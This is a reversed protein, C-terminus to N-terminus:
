VETWNTGIGSEVAFEVRHFVASAAGIMEREVMKQIAEMRDPPGEYYIADHVLATIRGRYAGIRKHVERAARVCIDSATSQPVFALAANEAANRNRSTIVEYQFQRNFPTILFHALDPDIVARRVNDQWVKLGPYTAHIGSVIADADGVPMDLETAIARTGRGYNMGYQVSKVQARLNKAEAPRDVKYSYFDDLSKIIKPFAAPMMLDFYDTAGPRFAAIMAEDGCLEALTRLEIQSYDTSGAVLDERTTIIAKRIPYPDNDTVRPINQINPNKSSLRGTTTGHVLFEPFFVGERQRKLIGTVYTSRLKSLGRYELLHDIFDKAPHGDEMERQAIVLTDEQTDPVPYGLEEMVAKVQQWSGPNFKERKTLTRLADLEAAAADDLRAGIDDLLPVDAGVGGSSVDQLMHSTPMLHSEYLERRPPDLELMARFKKLLRWTWYVDGANYQYLLDRPIREYHAGGVTYKKIDAEWEPANFFKRALDKLKHKKAGHFMAYHMLLTDDTAYFPRAPNLGATLFRMDFQGNHAVLDREELLRLIYAPDTEIAEQTFVYIREGDTMAMCLIDVEGPLDTRIDGSTEIDVVVEPGLLPPNEFLDDPGLVIYEFEHPEPAETVRKFAEALDSIASEKTVIQAASLTHVDGVGASGLVLSPLEPPVEEDIGYVTIDITAEGLALEKARRLVDIGTPSIDQDTIIALKRM